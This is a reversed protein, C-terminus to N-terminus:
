ISFEDSKPDNKDTFDAVLYGFPKQTACNYAATLLSRIGLQAGLTPVQSCIRFVFSVDTRKVM